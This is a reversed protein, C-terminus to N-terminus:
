GYAVFRQAAIRVADPATRFALAPARDGLMQNKGVFWAQITPKAELELLEEAIEMAITLASRCAENRLALEREKGRLKREGGTLIVTTLADGFIELARALLEHREPM